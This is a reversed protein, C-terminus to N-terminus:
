PPRSSRTPLGLARRFWRTMWPRPWPWAYDTWLREVAWAIAEESDEAARLQVLYAEREWRWRGWALLVPLPFVLYSVSFIPGWRAWQRVHVLEHTLVASHEFPDAVATPFYITRGITTFYESMFRPNGLLRLLAGCLRMLRSGTKPRLRARAAALQRQLSPQTSMARTYRQARQAIAATSMTM